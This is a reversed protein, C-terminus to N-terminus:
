KKKAAAKKAKKAAPPSKAELKSKLDAVERELAEIRAVARKLESRTPVNMTKLGRGVAQDVKQKGQLAGQMAKMFHENHMLENTVQGLVEEGRAKLRDFISKDDDSM